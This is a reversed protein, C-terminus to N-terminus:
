KCVVVYVKCKIYEKSFNIKASNGFPAVKGEVFGLINKDEFVLKQNNHIIVQIKDAPELEVKKRSM